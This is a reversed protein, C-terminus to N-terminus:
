DLSFSDITFFAKELYEKKSTSLQDLEMFIL